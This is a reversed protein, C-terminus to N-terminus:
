MLDPFEEDAIRNPAPPGTGLTRSACPLRFIPSMLAELEEESSLLLSGRVRPPSDMNKGGKVPSAKKKEAPPPGKKKAARSAARRTMVKESATNVVEAASIPSNAKPATNEGNSADQSESAPADLKPAAAAGGGPLAKEQAGDAVAEAENEETDPPLVDEPKAVENEAAEQEAAALLEVAEREKMSANYLQAIAEWQAITVPPGMGIIEAVEAHKANFAKRDARTRRRTSFGLRTLMSTFGSTLSSFLRQMKTQPEEGPRNVTEMIIAELDKVQLTLHLPSDHCLPKAELHYMAAQLDFVSSVDNM